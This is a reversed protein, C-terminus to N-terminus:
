EMLPLFKLNREGKVRSSYDLIGLLYIGETGRLQYSVVGSFCLCQFFIHWLMFFTVQQSFLIQNVALEQFFRLISSKECHSKIQSIILFIYYSRIISHKIFVKHVKCNQKLLIALM